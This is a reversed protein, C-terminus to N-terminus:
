PAANPGGADTAPKTPDKFETPKIGFLTFVVNGSVIKYQGNSAISRVSEDTILSDRKINFTKFKAIGPMEQGISQLLAYIDEDTLAEFTVNVDSSTVYHSPRIYKQDKPNETRSVTVRTNDGLFFKNKFAVFKKEIIARDTSLGEGANQKLYDQYLEANDQVKTYKDLLMQRNSKVTSVSTQMAQTEQIQAEVMDMLFYTLAGVVLLAAIGILAERLITNKISSVQM